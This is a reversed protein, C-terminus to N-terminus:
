QERMYQSYNRHDWDINEKVIRAPIGALACHERDFRKTVVSCAGLIAFSPLGGGKLVMSRMGIWCHDGVHISKGPNCPRGTSLDIITHGDSARFVVDTSVLVDNGIVIDVDECNYAFLVSDSSFHDGIVLKNRCMGAVHLSSILYPSAGIVVSSDHNMYILSNRFLPFDGHITVTNGDGHFEVRLGPIKPNRVVTGDERIQVFQNGKGHDACSRPGCAIMWRKRCITRAKKQPIFSTALRIFVHAVKVALTNLISM